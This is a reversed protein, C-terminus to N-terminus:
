IRELLTIWAGPEEDLGAQEAHRVVGDVPIVQGSASDRQWGEGEPGPRGTSYAAWVGLVRVRVQERPNTDTGHHGMYHTIRAVAPWVDDTWHLPSLGADIIDGAAPCDGCCEYEWFDTIAIIQGGSEAAIVDRAPTM